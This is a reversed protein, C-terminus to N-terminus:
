FARPYLLITIFTLVLNIGFFILFNILGSMFSNGGILAAVVFLFGSLFTGTVYKVPLRGFWWEKHWTAQAPGFSRLSHHPNLVFWLFDWVVTFFIFFGILLFENAFSWKSFWIYPWHFILLLFITLVLHYGTLEEGKSIKKVFRSFWNQEGPRWTPLKAAWGYPGEIQIELVALILAIIFFYISQGFLVSVLKNYCINKSRPPIPGGGGCHSHPASGSHSLGEM